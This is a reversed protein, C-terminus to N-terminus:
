RCGLEPRCYWGAFDGPFFNCGCEVTCGSPESADPDADASADGADSASPAYLCHVDGLLGCASPTTDASTPPCRPDNAAADSSADASADPFTVSADSACFCDGPTTPTEPDSDPFVDAIARTRGGCAVVIGFLLLWRGRAM